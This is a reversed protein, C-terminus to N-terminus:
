SVDVSKPVDKMQELVFRTDAEARVVEREECNSHSPEVSGATSRDVRSNAQKGSGRRVVLSLQIVTRCTEPSAAVAVM